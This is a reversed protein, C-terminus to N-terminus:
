GRVIVVRIVGGVVPWTALFTKCMKLVTKGYLIAEVQIWGDRHAARKALSIKERGYIRRGGRQGPKRAPPLSRLGADRRLRSVFTLGKLPLIRKLLPRYAYAGDTVVYVTRGTQVLLKYAWEILEAAMQLKTRFPWNVRGALAPLDKRKVYMLARLPLGIAHWLPHRVVLALTVWLHGYVFKHDDPGSTPNHHLGAGEVRPGYRPTPSDDIALIVRAGLPLHNALLYLLREAVIEAKRGLTSIFYYYNSRDRVLGAGRLWSTVTRRGRALVVGVVVLPLRWRTESHLGAALYEVWESWEVPTRRFSRCRTAM